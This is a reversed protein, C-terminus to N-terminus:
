PSALREPCQLGLDVLLDRRADVLPALGQGAPDLELRAPLEQGREREIGGVPGGEVGELGAGALHLEEGV